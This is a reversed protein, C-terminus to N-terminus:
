PAPNWSTLNEMKKHVRLILVTKALARRRATDQDVETWDVAELRTGLLDM